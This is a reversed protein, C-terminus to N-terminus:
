KEFDMARTGVQSSLILALENPQIVSHTHIIEGRILARAQQQQIILQCDTVHIDCDVWHGSPLAQNIRLTRNGVALARIDDDTSVLVELEVTTRTTGSMYKRTSDGYTTIDIQPTVRNWVFSAMELRTNGVAAFLPEDSLVPVDAFEDGFAMLMARRVNDM